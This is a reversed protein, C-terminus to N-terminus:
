GPEGARPAAQEGAPMRSVELGDALQAVGVAVIEEGARLGSLVRIRDAQMEGTRVARRSVTMTAPDLVWVMPELGADATVASAPIWMAPEARLLRSFDVTVTASMGPLVVMDAPNAMRFTLEYTQTQPDARTAAEVLALAIRRGPAGDFNVWASAESATGEVSMDKQAEFSRLLREPLDVKVELAHLQQLTVVPQKPAVEEFRQVMRRAVSGAFPAKLVTYELNRRSQQLAAEASKHGAELRDYDLRSIHGKPLLERAREFNRRANEYTAERDRLEIRFDTDDLRALEAGEAVTDGERVAIDAVTGPLRFSLDARRASEVRAPFSRQESQDGSAAVFTKVPRVAAAAPVSRADREGDCAVLLVLLSAFWRHFLARPMTSQQEPLPRMPARM